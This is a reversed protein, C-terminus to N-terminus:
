HRLGFAWYRSLLFTLGAVLVLAIFLDAYPSLSTAHLLALYVLHNVCFGLVATLLFRPLATGHAVRADAAFSFHYHGFYSVWFAAAFGAPNAWAPSTLAFHICFAAVVYHTLAALAGVAGFRLLTRMM